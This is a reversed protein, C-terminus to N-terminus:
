RTGVTGPGALRIRGELFAPVCGFAPIEPGDLREGLDAPKLNGAGLDVDRDVAPLLEVNLAPLWDSRCRGRPPIVPPWTRSPIARRRAWGHPIAVSAPANSPRGPGPM